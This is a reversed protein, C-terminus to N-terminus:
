KAALLLIWLETIFLVRCPPGVAPCVGVLAAAVSNPSNRDTGAYFGPNTVPHTLSVDDVIELGCTCAVFLSKADATLAADSGYNNGADRSCETNQV